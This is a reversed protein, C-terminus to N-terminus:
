QQVWVETGENSYGCRQVRMAIGVGSYVSQQVWVETGENSYGCRQVRMAIGM